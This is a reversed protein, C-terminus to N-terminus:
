LSVIKSGLGARNLALGLRLTKIADAYTARVETRKGTEIARLFAVNQALIADDAGRFLSTEDGRRTELTGERLLHIAEPTALSFERESGSELFRGANFAGRAGSQFQVIATKSEPASLASVKAVEGGFIRALDLLQYAGDLWIGGSLKDNERWATAPATELWNGSIIQPKPANKPAIQKRLRETSEFYRWYSGVSCPVGFRNIANLVSQATALNLAVPTEIFLAVGAKAAAIEVPGRVNPPTCIYLADLNEGNLMRNPSSYVTAGFDAAFTEARPAAIDCVAVIEADLRSLTEAHRRAAQGAGFFGIQVPV